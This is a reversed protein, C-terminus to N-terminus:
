FKEQKESIEVVVGVRPLFKQDQHVHLFLVLIDQTCPVWNYNSTSESPAWRWTTRATTFNQWQKCVTRQWPQWSSSKFFSKDFSCVCLSPLSYTVNRIGSYLRYPAREEITKAAQSPPFSLLRKFFWRCSSRATTGIKTFYDCSKIQERNLM